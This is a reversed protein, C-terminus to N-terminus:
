LLSSLASSYQHHRQLLVTRWMGADCPTMVNVNLSKGEVLSNDRELWLIVPAGETTSQIWDSM